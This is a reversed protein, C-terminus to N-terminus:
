YLEPPAAISIQDVYDEIEDPAQPPSTCGWCPAGPASSIRELKTSFLAEFVEATASCALGFDTSHCTVGQSALWRRCKAINEAPPKFQDINDVHPTKGSGPAKLLIDFEVIDSPSKETM